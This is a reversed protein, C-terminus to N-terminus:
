NIIILKPKPRFISSYNPYILITIYNSQKEVRYWCLVVKLMQSAQWYMLTMGIRKAVDSLSSLNEFHIVIHTRLCLQVRYKKVRLIRYSSLELTVSLFLDLALGIVEHKGSASPHFM